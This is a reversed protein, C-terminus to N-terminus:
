IDQLEVKESRMEYYKFLDEGLKLASKEYSIINKYFDYTNDNLFFRMSIFTDTATFAVTIEEDCVRLSANKCSLFNLLEQKYDKKLKEFVKRPIVISIDAGREALMTVIKPYEPHLAPSVGRMRRSNLLNKIYEEHPKFIETPTGEFIKYDGLEYLQTWFEEPIWSIKHEKWFKIDGEFIKLTKFLHDFSKTVIKGVETLYYKKCERFILDGKELKRIQPIIEPSTVKFYDKIEDLSKPEEQLMLLIGIRKESFSILSLLGKSKM